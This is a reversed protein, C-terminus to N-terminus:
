VRDHSEQAVPDASPLAPSRWAGQDLDRPRGRHSHPYSPPPLVNKERADHGSSRGPWGRKLPQSRIVLVRGYSDRYPIQRLLTEEGGDHGPMDGHSASYAPPQLFINHGPGNDM